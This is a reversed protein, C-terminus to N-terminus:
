ELILTSEIINNVAPSHGGVVLLGWRLTRCFKDVLERGRWVKDGLSTRDNETSTEEGGGDGLLEIDDILLTDNETTEQDKSGENSLHTNETGIM